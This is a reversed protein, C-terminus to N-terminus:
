MLLSFTPVFGWNQLQGRVSLCAGACRELSCSDKCTSVECFNTNRAGFM